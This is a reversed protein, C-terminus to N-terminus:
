LQVTPLVSELRQNCIGLANDRHDRLGVTPYAADTGIGIRRRVDRDVSRDSDALM